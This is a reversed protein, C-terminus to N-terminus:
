PVISDIVLYIPQTTNVSIDNVQAKFDDSKLGAGGSNSLVAYLHVSEVSSLSAEPMMASTNNLIVTAPLDSVHIKVAALPMRRGDTPIAYVFVVKDEGQNVQKVQKLLEESLTVEVRLQPGSQEADISLKSKNSESSNAKGSSLALRSKAEVIAESLAAINVNSRGSNVVKQWYAVAQQYNQTMYNHMGLLINTSPDLPDLALAKDILLQVTGDIKQDNRYYAAQAKVGLIDAHEGEIRIVQDFATMAFDFQGVGVLAQGLGYWADSNQANQETLEKFHKVQAIAQQQQETTQDSRAPAQVPAQVSTTLRQYAGTKLYLAFSFVIVFLSIVSPWLISLSKSEAALNRDEAKNAEIDQLLSQDLEALLYRYSEEDINEQQYDQDIEEKHEHYLRVNEADRQDVHETKSAQQVTLKKDQQQQNIIQRVFPLWVVAIILILFSVIIILTEIM